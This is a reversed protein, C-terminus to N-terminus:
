RVPGATDGGLQGWLWERWPYAIDNAEALELLRDLPSIPMGAALESQVASLLANARVPDPLPLELIRLSLRAALAHQGGADRVAAEELLARQLLGPAPEGARARGLAELARGPKELLSWVFGQGLAVWPRLRPLDDAAEADLIALSDLISILPGAERPPGFLPNALGRLTRQLTPVLDVGAQGLLALERAAAVENPLTAWAGPTGTMLEMARDYAGIADPWRTDIEAAEAALLEAIVRAEAVSFDDLEGEAAAPDIAARALDLAALAPAVNGGALENKAQALHVFLALRAGGAQTLIRPNDGALIAEGVARELWRDAEQGILFQDLLGSYDIVPPGETLDLTVLDRAADLNGQRALQALLVQRLEAARDGAATRGAHLLVAQFEPHPLLRDLYDPERALLEEFPEFAGEILLHLGNLGATSLGDHALAALHGAAAEPRDARLDGGATLWRRFDPADASAESFWAALGDRTWALDVALLAQRTLTLDKLDFGTLALRELQAARAAPSGAPASQVALDLWDLAPDWRRDARELRARAAAIMFRSQPDVPQEAWLADLGERATEIRGLRYRTLALLLMDELGRAHLAGRGPNAADDAILILTGNVALAIGGGPRPAPRSLPLSEWRARTIERRWWPADPRWLLLEDGATIAIRGTDLVAVGAAEGTEDVRRRDLPEPAEPDLWRIESGRAARLAVAIRRGDPEFAPAARDADTDRQDGVLIRPEPLGPRWWWLDVGAASATQFVLADGAPATWLALIDTPRDLLMEIAGTRPDLAWLNVDDADRDSLFIVRGDALWDPHSKWSADELIPPEIRGAAPDILVLRSPRQPYQESFVLLSGDPRWGIGGIAQSSYLRMGGSGRLDLLGLEHNRTLVAATHGGPAIEIRQIPDPDFCGALLGLALTAFVRLPRPPRDPTARTLIPQIM